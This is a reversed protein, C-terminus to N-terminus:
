ISWRYCGDLNVANTSPNKCMRVRSQLSFFSNIVSERYFHLVVVKNCRAWLAFQQRLQHPLQDYMLRFGVVAPWGRDAMVLAVDRIAQLYRCTM